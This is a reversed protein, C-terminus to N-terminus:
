RYEQPMCLNDLDKPGLEEYCAPCVIVSEYDSPDIYWNGSDFILNNRPSYFLMNTEQRCYPCTPM